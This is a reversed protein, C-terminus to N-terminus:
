VELTKSTFTKYRGPLGLVPRGDNIINFKGGDENYHLFVQAHNLGKFPERWHELHNGEYIIMDGPQMYIPLGPTGEKGTSPGLFMPWSYNVDDLNSIDHGLFLTTSIECSPRDKHRVLQCGTTYLRNYSYNTILKLGVMSEVVPLKRALLTDFVLDGYKSFVGNVQGDTFTGYESMDRESLETQSNELHALRVASLKVYDYLFSAEEATIFNTIKIYHNNKFYEVSENM